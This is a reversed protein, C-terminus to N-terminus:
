NDDRTLPTRYVFLLHESDDQKSHWTLESDPKVGPIPFEHTIIRSGPPLKQLQPILRSNLEPLLFLFVVNTQSLDVTFIDQAQIQALKELKADRIKTRGEAVLKPDIEYGIARCGYQRAASLVVRGDGCGLDCVLDKDTVRALKLVHDVVDQTTPYYGVDPQKTAPGEAQVLPQCVTVLVACFLSFRGM